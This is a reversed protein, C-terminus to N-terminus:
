TVNTIIGGNIELTIPPNPSPQQIVVNGCGQVGYLRQMLTEM